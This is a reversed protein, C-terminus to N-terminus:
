FFQFIHSIVISFLPSLLPLFEDFVVGVLFDRFFCVFEFTLKIQIKIHIVHLVEGEFFWLWWEIEWFNFAKNIARKSRPKPHQPLMYQIDVFVFEFGVWWEISPITDRHLYFVFPVDVEDYWVFFCHCHKQFQKYPMQLRNIPLLPRRPIVLFFLDIFLQSLQLSFSFIITLLLITIYFLSDFFLYSM